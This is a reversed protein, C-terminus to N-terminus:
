VELLNIKGNANLIRLALQLNFKQDAHNFDIEGIDKLRQIRYKLGSLSVNLEKSTRQLNCENALFIHLTSILTTGGSEEDYKLLKELTRTAYTLLQEQASGAYLLDFVNMEEVLFIKNTRGLRTMVKMMNSCEEFLPQLVEISMAERSICISTKINAFLQEQRDQLVKAVRRFDLGNPDSPGLLIIEGRREVILANKTSSHLKTRVINLLENRLNMPLDQDEILGNDNGPQIMKVLMFRHPKGFDYGMYNARKVLQEIPTTGSLLDELFEGKLKHETNLATKEKLLDVALVAAARETIMQRLESDTGEVHIVSIYGMIEDGLVIPAITRELFMAEDSVIFDKACKEEDLQRLKLHFESSTEKEPKILYPEISSNEKNPLWWSLPRFYKDQVIVPSHLMQGIADIVAQRSQGSLVMRNLQEHIEMIRQLMTHQKQIHQHAEELEEAIKTQGYFSLEHEIDNGWEEVTRGIFRCETDGRGVCAVEKYLIKRGFIGTSVGSAYGILTWCVPDKVIGFHQIHQEVEFSNLWVGEMYFKNQEYDVSLGQLDVQVFGEQMHFIPAQQHLYELSANPFLKKISISDKYGCEWGYRLLFARARERGLTSILDRSLMGLAEANMLIFREGKFRIQGPNFEIDSKNLSTLVQEM